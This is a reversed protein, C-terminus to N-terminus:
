RQAAPRSPQGEAWAHRNVIGVRWGSGSEGSFHDLRTLSCNEVAFALAGQPSLGLAHAIAGRITGGHAVAVIDRGAHALTLRDIAEAVRACLDAFSEGEPPREEAPAFWYSSAVPQREAFFRARDLGQWAGLHQEAFEPVVTPSPADTGDRLYGAGWLAEATQRTRGLHSTVWVADAPLEAALAEFIHTDGCDCAIDSQGYIRGEDGRVPAHRVWWWRTRVFPARGGAAGSSLHQTPDTTVPFGSGCTDDGIPRGSAVDEIAACSRPRRPM